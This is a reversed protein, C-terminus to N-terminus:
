FSRSPLSLPRGRGRRKLVFGSIGSITCFLMLLLPAIQLSEKFLALGMPLCGMLAYIGNYCLAVGTYRVETRFLGSLLPLFSASLFSLAIQYLLAFLLLFVMSKFLLLQFLPWILLAILFPSWLTGWRDTLWGAIPLSLASGILGWTMAFYIEELSYLSNLSAPLCLYFIVFSSAGLGLGIGLLLQPPNNRFLYLLPGQFRRSPPLRRFEPTEGLNKRTYLAVVALLAGLLFPLRWGWLLLESQGMSRTLLSLVCTALLSGVGASSLAFSLSCSRKQREAYETIVTIAGPLEAGFSLGQLLRFLLLLLPALPGVQAYTPLLGICFTAGAMLLMVLLFSRKRGLTDGVMGFLTGGIPRVVYGLAFIAYTKMLSLWPADLPFFLTNLLNAMMGYIVFDYYELGAGLSSLFIARKRM